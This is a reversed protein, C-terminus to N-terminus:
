VKETQGLYKVIEKHGAAKALAKATEGSDLRANVDAGSEILLRVVELHGNEAAAHLATYGLEGKVNVECKNNLALKVKGTDGARCWYELENVEVLGPIMDKLSPGDPNNFMRAVEMITRDKKEATQEKPTLKHEKKKQVM